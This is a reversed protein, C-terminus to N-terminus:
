GVPVRVIPATVTLAVPEDVFYRYKLHANILLTDDPRQAWTAPNNPDNIIGITCSKTVSEGRRLKIPDMLFGMVEWSVANPFLVYSPWSLAPATPTQSIGIFVEGIKGAMGWADGWPTDQYWASFTDQYQVQLSTFFQNLGAPINSYLMEPALGLCRRFFIGPGQVWITGLLLGDTERGTVPDLTIPLNDGVNKFTFQYTYEDYIGPGAIFKDPGILSITIPVNQSVQVPISATAPPALKGQSYLSNYRDRSYGEVQALASTEYDYKVRIKLDFNAKQGEPLLPAPLRFQITKLQGPLGFRPDPPDLTTGPAGDVDDKLEYFNALVINGQLYQQSIASTIWSAGILEAVVHRAKASGLNEIDATITMMEGSQLQDAPPDIYLNTIVLGNGGAAATPSQGICGATLAIAVLLIVLLIRYSQM